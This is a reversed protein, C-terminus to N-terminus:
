HSRTLFQLKNVRQSYISSWTILKPEDCYVLILYANSLKSRGDKRGAFFNWLAVKLSFISPRLVRHSLRHERPQSKPVQDSLLKALCVSVNFLSIFVMPIVLRPHNLLSTTKWCPLVVKTSCVYVFEPELHITPFNYWMTQMTLVQGWWHKIRESRWSHRKAQVFNSLSSLNIEFTFVHSSFSSTFNKLHANKDQQWPSSFPHIQM